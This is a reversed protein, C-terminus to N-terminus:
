NAGKSGSKDEASAAQSKTQVILVTRNEPRLYEQATKMLLQPTVKRFESELRNIRQPDDDFLAFSALLNARGFGFFGEMENFLSSRM